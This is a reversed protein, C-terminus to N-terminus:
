PDVDFVGNPYLARAPLQFGRVVGDECLIVFFADEASVAMSIPRSKLKAVSVRYEPMYADFAWICWDEDVAVIVDFFDPTRGSTICFIRKDYPARKVIEGNVGIIIIQKSECIVTFGWIPTICTLVKKNEVKNSSSVIKTHINAQVVIGNKMVANIANVSTQVFVSYISTRYCKIICRPEKMYSAKFVILNSDVDAVVVNQMDCHMATIQISHTYCNEIKKTKTSFLTVTILNSAYLFGHPHYCWIEPLNINFNYECMMYHDEKEAPFVKVRYIKGVGKNTLYNVVAHGKVITVLGMHLKIDPGLSYEWTGEHQKIPIIPAQPHPSTFLQQPMQGVTEHVARILNKDADPENWIEPYMEPLYVNRAEIAAQGKQKYGFILDIWKHLNQRVHNTELLRRHKYIFDFPTNAWPPLIVDTIQKGNVEGFNFGNENTLFEPQFFFEPICEHYDTPKRARAVSEFIYIPDDFVNSGQKVHLTTFPEMRVLWNCIIRPHIPAYNYHYPKVGFNKLRNFDTDLKEDTSPDQNGIPRSFDRYFAPNKIDLPLNYDKLVWPMFPYLTLCSFTRGAIFNLYLLYEFNSISHRLWKKTLDSEAIYSQFDQQMFFKASPFKRAELRSLFNLASSTTFNFMYSTGDNHIIEIATPLQDWTRLFISQISSFRLQKLPIDNRAISFTDDSISVLGQKIKNLTIVECEFEEVFDGNELQQKKKIVKGGDIKILRKDDPKKKEQQEYTNFRFNRRNRVPILGHSLIDDRKFKMVGDSNWAARAWPASDATFLNWQRQWLIDQENLDKKVGDLFKVVLRTSFIGIDESPSLSKSIVSSAAKIKEIYEKIRIFSKADPEFTMKHTIFEYQRQREMYPKQRFQPNLIESFLLLSKSFREYLKLAIFEGNYNLHLGFVKQPAKKLSRKLIEDFNDQNKIEDFSNLWSKFSLSMLGQTKRINSPRNFLSCKSRMDNAHSYGFANSEEKHPKPGYTEDALKKLEFSFKKVPKCLFTNVFCKIIVNMLEKNNKTEQSETLELLFINFFKEHGGFIGGIADIDKVLKDLHKSTKILFKSAKVMTEVSDERMFVLIPVFNWLHPLKKRTLDIKDLVLDLCHCNHALVFILPILVIQNMELLKTVLHKSGYKPKLELALATFHEYPDINGLMDYKHVKCFIDIIDLEMEEDGCGIIYTLTIICSFININQTDVVFSLIHKLISIVEKAYSVDFATMATGIMQQLHVNNVFKAARKKLMKIIIQRIESINQDRPIEEFKLFEKEVNKEYFYCRLMMILSAIPVKLKMDSWLQVIKKLDETSCKMWLDLNFLITDNLNQILKQNKIFPLLDVFKKYLNFDLKEEHILIAAMQGFGFSGAFEEEFEFGTTMLQIFINIIRDFYDDGMRSYKLLPILVTLGNITKLTHILGYNNTSPTPVFTTEIQDKLIFKMKVTMNKKMKPMGILIAKPTEWIHRSGLKYIEEIEEDELVSYVGIQGHRAANDFLDAEFPPNSFIMDYSDGTRNIQFPGESHFQGNYFFQVYGGNFIFACHFWHLLKFNCEVDFKSKMYQVTMHKNSVGICFKEAAMDEITFIRFVNPGKDEIYLWFAVTFGGMIVKKDIGFCSVITKYTLPIYPGPEFAYRNVFSEFFNFILDFFPPRTKGDRPCMFSIFKSVFTGSSAGSNIYDLTYLMANVDVKTHTNNDIWELLLDALAIDFQIDRCIMRKVQSEMCNDYIIRLFNQIHTDKFIKLMTLLFKPFKFDFIHQTRDFDRTAVVTFLTFLLEFDYKQYTKTIIEYMDTRVPKTIKDRLTNRIIKIVALIVKNSHDSKEMDKTWKILLPLDSLFLNSDAEEETLIQWFNLIDLVMRTMGPQPQVIFFCQFLEHIAGIVIKHEKNLFLYKLSFWRVPDEYALTKLNTVFEIDNFLKDSTEPSKIYLEIAYFLTSRAISIKKRVNEDDGKYTQYLYILRMLRNPFSKPILEFCKQNHMIIFIIESLILPQQVLILLTSFLIDCVKPMEFFFNIVNQRMVNIKPFLPSNSFFSVNDKFLPSLFLSTIAPSYDFELKTRELLVIFAAFVDFYKYTHCGNCIRRVWSSMFINTLDTNLLIFESLMMFRNGLDKDIIDICKQDGLDLEEPYKPIIMDEDFTKYSVWEMQTFQEAKGGDIPFDSTSEPIKLPSNRRQFIEDIRDPFIEILQKLSEMNLSNYFRLHFSLSSKDLNLFSKELIKQISIIVSQPFKLNSELMEGLGGLFIAGQPNIDISNPKIVVAAYKVILDYYSESLNKNSLFFDQLAPFIQDFNGNPQEIVFYTFVHFFTSSAMVKSKNLITENKSEMLFNLADLLTKFEDISKGECFDITWAIASNLFYSIIFDPAIEEVDSFKMLQRLMDPKFVFKYNNNKMTDVGDSITGCKKTIKEIESGSYEPFTNTTLLKQIQPITSDKDYENALIKGWLHQLPILEQM